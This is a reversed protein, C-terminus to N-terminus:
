IGAFGLIGALMDILLLVDGLIQSDVLSMVRIDYGTFVVLNLSVSLIPLLHSSLHRASEHFFTYTTGRVM